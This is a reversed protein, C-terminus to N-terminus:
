IRARAQSITECIVDLFGTTSDRVAGLSGLVFVAIMACLLAYETATVGRECAALRRLLM